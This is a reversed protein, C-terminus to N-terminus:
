LARYLKSFTISQNTFNFVAKCVSQSIRIVSPASKPKWMEVDGRMISNIHCANDLSIRVGSEPGVTTALPFFLYQITLCHFHTASGDAVHLSVLSYIM